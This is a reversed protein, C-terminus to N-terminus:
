RRVATPSAPFCRDRAILRGVKELPCSANRCGFDGEPAFQFPSCEADDGFDYGCAHFSCRCTRLLDARNKFSERAQRAVHRVVEEKRQRFSELADAQGGAQIAAGLAVIVVAAVGRLSM